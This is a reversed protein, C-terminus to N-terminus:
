KERNDICEVFAKIIARMQDPAEALVGHDTDLIIVHEPYDSRSNIYDETRPDQSGLVTRSCAEKPEITKFPLDNDAIYTDLYRDNNFLGKIAHVQQGAELRFTSLTRWNKGRKDRPTNARYKRLHFQLGDMVPVMSLFNMGEIQEKGLAALAMHNGLSGAVVALDGGDAAEYYAHALAVDKAGEELENKIYLTRFSTGWYAVSALTYGQRLLEMYPLEQMPMPLTVNENGEFQEILEKTAPKYASFPRDGPGGVLDFIYGKSAIGNALRSEIVPVIRSGDQIAMLTSTVGQHTWSECELRSLSSAALAERSVKALCNVWKAEDSGDRPEESYGTRLLDLHEADLEEFREHQETTTGHEKECASLCFLLIPLLFTQFARTVNM